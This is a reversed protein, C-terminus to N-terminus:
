PDQLTAPCGGPLTHPKTIYMLYLPPPLSAKHDVLGLYPLGDPQEQGEPLDEEHVEEHEYTKKQETVLKGDPQALCKLESDETDVTKHLNSSQHVIRPGTPVLQQQAEANFLLDTIKEQGSNVAKLYTQFELFFFCIGNSKRM